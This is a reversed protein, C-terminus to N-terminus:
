GIANLCGRGTPRDAAAAFLVGCPGSPPDPRVFRAVLPSVTQGGFLAVSGDLRAFLGDSPMAGCPSFAGPNQRPASRRSLRFRRSIRSVSKMAPFRSVVYVFIALNLSGVQGVHTSYKPQVFCRSVGASCLSLRLLAHCKAKSVLSV